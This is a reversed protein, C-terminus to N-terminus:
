GDPQGGPKEIVIISVALRCRGDGRNSFVVTGGAVVYAGGGYEHVRSRVDFQPPTLDTTTGDAARRVLVSRGGEAPRGELWTIDDGDVWPDGVRISEALIDDIRIASPWAGYPLTPPPSPLPEDSM